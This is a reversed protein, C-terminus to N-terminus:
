PCNRKDDGPDARCRDTGKGGNLEDNGSVGDRGRLVDHGGNGELDDGGKGGVVTDEGAQGSLADNGRGGLILDDGGGGEIEDDGGLGCLTEDGPGGELHDRMPSGRLDCPDDSITGVGMDDVILAGSPNSLRLLFTEPDEVIADLLVPVSIQAFLAGAPISLSGSAAEYDLGATATEDATEYSVMVPSESVSSLSVEFLAEGDTELASVDAVSIAATTTAGDDDVITGVGQGDSITADSAGSLNVFFTEDSEDATDGNVTVSVSEATDGPAFTVSGSASVFDSGATATGGATAYSVSATDSSAESLTVAFTATTTGANGEVVTADGISVSPLPEIVMVTGTMGQAGHVQCFYGFTGVANFSQSFTGSSKIGSDWLGTNSTTSHMNSGAWTWQVTDGVNITVSSDSFFNDNVSVGVTAASTPVALLVSAGLLGAALAGPVGGGPHSRRGRVSSLVHGLALPITLDPEAPLPGEPDVESGRHGCADTDGGGGLRRARGKLYRVGNM